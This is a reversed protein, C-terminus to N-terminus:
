REMGVRFELLEARLAEAVRSELAFAGESEPSVVTLRDFKTWHREEAHFFFIMGSFMAAGALWFPAVCRALVMRQWETTRRKKLRIALSLVWGAFPVAAVMLFEDSHERAWATGALVMVALAGAAAVFEPWTSPFEMGVERGRHKLRGGCVGLTAALMLMACAGFQGVFPEVGAFSWSWERVAFPGIRSMALYVALPLAGGLLLIMWRDSGRLLAPLRGSAKGAWGGVFWPVTLAATAACAMVGCAVLAMMRERMAYGAYRDPQLEEATPVMPNRTLRFSMPMIMQGALWGSRRHFEDAEPGKGAADRARKDELSQKWKADYRAADEPLGLNAAADRFNRLPGALCNRAMLLSLLDHRKLFRGTLVDWDRVIRHFGEVDGRDSCREAEASILDILPRLGGIGNPSFSLTIRQVSSIGDTGPPVLIERERFREVRYDTFRPMGLAERFRTLAEDMRPEDVLDYHFAVKDQDSKPIGSRDSKKVAEAVLSAAEMAPFFGNQPDIRAAAEKVEAPVAKPEIAHAALYAPNEPDSLWLSRWQGNPDDPEGDLLRKQSATLNKLPPADLGTGCCYQFPDPMWRVQPLIELVGPLCAALALISMWVTWRRWLGGSWREIASTCRELAETQPPHKERGQRLREEASIRWESNAVLPKCVADIWRQGPNEM